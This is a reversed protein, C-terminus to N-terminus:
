PLLRPRMEPPVRPCATKPSGLIRKRVSAVLRYVGDRLGEPVRGLLAARKNWPPGLLGMAALTARSRVLPRSGRAMVFVVSDPATARFEAPLVAEWTEGGIPAFHIRGAKDRDM